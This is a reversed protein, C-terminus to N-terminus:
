PKLGETEVFVLESSRFSSMMEVASGPQKREELIWSKELSSSWRESDVLWSKLVGSASRASTLVMISEM